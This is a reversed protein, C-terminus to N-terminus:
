GGCPVSGSIPNDVKILCGSLSPFLFLIQNVSVMLTAKIGSTSLPIEDGGRDQIDLLVQLLDDIENEQKM